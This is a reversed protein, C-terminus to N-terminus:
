AIGLQALKAETPVGRQDWGRLKYYEPLMESLHHVQGKSPGQPIPDKLLRKPLTDQDASIGAKLNFM